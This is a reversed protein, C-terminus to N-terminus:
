PMCLVTLLACILCDSRGRRRALLRARALVAVAGAGLAALAELDLEACILCDLGSEPM